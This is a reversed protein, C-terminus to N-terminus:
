TTPGKRDAVLSGNKRLAIYGQHEDWGYFLTNLIGQGRTDNLYEGRFGILGRSPILYEVRVRGSSARMALMRGKRLNMKESIVGM